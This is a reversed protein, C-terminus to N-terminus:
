PEHNASKPPLGRLVERLPKGHLAALDRFARGGLIFETGPFTIALREYLRDGQATVGQGKLFRGGDKAVAAVTALLLEPALTGGRVAKQVYIDLLEAGGVCHHVDYTRRWIAFGVLEADDLAVLTHAERGLVDRALADVSGAFRRLFVEEMYEDLLAALRTVDEPAADRIRSM